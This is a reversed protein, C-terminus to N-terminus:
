QLMFHIPRAELRHSMAFVTMGEGGIVDEKAFFTANGTLLAAVFVLM